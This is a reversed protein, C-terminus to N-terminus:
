ASKITKQILLADGELNPSESILYGGVKNTKLAKVLAKYNYDSEKLVLHHKEGKESYAIGSIHMHLKDLASKGLDKKTKKFISNIEEPTNYKGNSRAHLHAFDICVELQSVESAMKILEDLNGFATNKGTTEFAIKIPNKEKKLIRIVDMIHKKVLQYTKEPDDKGYYAPHVAVSKAGAENGIRASQLIYKKSAIIKQPDNSNLNIYYPAHATLIVDNDKAAQGIKRATEPSAKVGRVFELEMLDLGLEKVRKIGSISDRKKCSVPVGATGIHLTM